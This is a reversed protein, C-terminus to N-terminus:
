SFRVDWSEDVGSRLVVLVPRGTLRNDSYCASVVVETGMAGLCAQDLVISEDGFPQGIISLRDQRLAFLGAQGNGLQRGAVPSEGFWARALPLDRPDNTPASTM